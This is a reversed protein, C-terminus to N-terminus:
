PGGPFTEGIHETVPADAFHIVYPPACAAIRDDDHDLKEVPVGAMLLTRDHGRARDQRENRDADQREDTPLSPVRHVPTAGTNSIVPSRPRHVPLGRRRARLIARGSNIPVGVPTPM